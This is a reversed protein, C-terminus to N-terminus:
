TKAHKTQKEVAASLFTGSLANQEHMLVPALGAKQAAQLRQRGPTGEVVQRHTVALARFMTSYTAPTFSTSSELAPSLGLLPARLFADINTTPRRNRGIDDCTTQVYNEM